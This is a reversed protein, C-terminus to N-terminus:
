RAARGKCSKDHLNATATESRKSAMAEVRKDTIRDTANRRKENTTGPLAHPVEGVHTMSLYLLHLGHRSQGVLWIDIQM